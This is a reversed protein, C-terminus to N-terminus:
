QCSCRFLPLEELKMLDPIQFTPEITVCADFYVGAKRRIWITPIGIAAPGQFDKSPNDGVYCVEEVSVGMNEIALEFPYPSPKWYKRDPGLEDTFIICDFLPELNLAEVKRRQVARWGDTVLGLKLGSDLLKKLIYKADRYLSIEPTHNRYGCIMFIALDSADLSDVISHIGTQILEESLNDFVHNKDESFLELMRCYAKEQMSKDTFLSRSVHRFGSRVYQMEPYLTDDLDFLVAKLKSL